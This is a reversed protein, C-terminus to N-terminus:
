AARNRLRREYADELKKLAPANPELRRIEAILARTRESDGKVLHLGALNILNRTDQPLRLRLRECLDIAIDYNGALRHCRSLFRMFENDSPKNGLYAEGEAIAKAYNKAEYHRGSASRKALKETEPMTDGYYRIKLLSFDDTIEGIEQTLEFIRELEGDAKRVTELILDEQENMRPKGDPSPLMIDDRGDSGCILMDGPKLEFIRIYITGSAASMGLKRVYLEQEIFTATGDRYLISWPHEANIYYLLGSDNDVIGLVLSILMSHDFSEFVKHLELFTNKLWREPSLRQMAAVARTREIISYYVAGLVLAGGAGQMSKGMADANMFATYERDRIRITHASCLDGGLDHPKGKFYFKKKQRQLFEVTLRDSKVYNTNLPKLLLSTLFYDGDQHLKLRRVEELTNNLEETRTIVKQELTDNLEKVEHYMKSLDRAVVAILEAQRGFEDTTARASNAKFDGKGLQQLVDNTDHISLKVTKAIRYSVIVIAALAELSLLVIHVEPHQFSNKGTVTTYLIFGFIAIPTITVAAISLMIRSFYSTERISGGAAPLGAFVPEQLLPRLVSEPMFIYMVYSIPLVFLLSYVEVGLAYWPVERMQGIYILAGAVVGVSWRAIIVRGERYPYELLKNRLAIKEDDSASAAAKLADLQGLLSKLAFWRFALGWIVTGGGAFIGAIAVAWIRAEGEFAGTVMIFYVFTPIPIVSTFTELRWSLQFFPSRRFEPSLLPM